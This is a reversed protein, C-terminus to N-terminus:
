PNLEKSKEYARVAGETDGSRAELRALTAWNRWNVPEKQVARRAVAAGENFRSGLELVIAQQILPAAADPQADAASRAAAMAAPLDGTAAAVHSERLDTNEQLPFWIAYLAAVGALVVLVRPAYRRVASPEKTVKSRVRRALIGGLSDRETDTAVVAALLLFIAPLAPIEWLWDLGAGVAFAAAAATAAAIRARAGPSATFSRWAGVAVTGLVVAVILILGIWGLEAFNDFYLSHSDRVYGFKKPDQAWHFEFTGPGTGKLPDEANADIASQWFQYRGSSSTDTLVASRDTQDVSSTGRSKFNQWGDSIEGPVGAVFMAPILVVVAAACAILAQPRSVRLWRPREGYRVALGIAVQVLATGIAIVIAITLLENGQSLAAPTPLGRDLAARDNIGALLILTGAGGTLLTLIKPLRDPSLVVFAGVAVLAAGTGTGSSSLVLAFGAIPLAAAGLAQMSLTKSWATAGALLPIAVAAMVGVASSYGLPYALRREIEIDPLYLGNLNEPFWQPHLRSLVALVAVVGIGTTVGGLLYRARRGDGAACLGLVLIGGYSCVRALEGATEEPSISWGMSLATWLAYAGFAVLLATGLRTSTPLSFAGAAIGSIAIVWAAVGVQDRVIPDYGGNQLLLYIVAAAGLAWSAFAPLDPRKTGAFPLTGPLRQVREM